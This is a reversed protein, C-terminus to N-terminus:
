EDIHTSFLKSYAQQRLASSDGLVIYHEHPVILNDQHGLTNAHCSSWRYEGPHSVM